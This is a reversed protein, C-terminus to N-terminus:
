YKPRDRNEAVVFERNEEWRKQWKSEITQFDYQEQM